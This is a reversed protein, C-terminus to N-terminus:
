SQKSVGNEQGGEEIFNACEGCILATTGAKQYTAGKGYKFGWWCSTANGYTPGRRLDLNRCSGKKGSEVLAVRIDVVEGAYKGGRTIKIDSIM